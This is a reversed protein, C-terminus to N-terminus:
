YSSISVPSVKGVDFETLAIVSSPYAGFLLKYSETLESSVRKV